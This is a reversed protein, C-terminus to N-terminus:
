PYRRSDDRPRTVALERSARGYSNRRPRSGCDGVDPVRPREPERQDPEEERGPDLLTVTQARFALLGGALAKTMLAGCIRV